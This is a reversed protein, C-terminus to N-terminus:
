SNTSKQSSLKYFRNLQLTSSPPETTPGPTSCGYSSSSVCPSSAPSSHSFFASVITSQQWFDLSSGTLWGYKKRSSMTKRSLRFQWNLVKYSMYAPYLMGFLTTLLDPLIDFLALLMVSFTGALFLLSPRLGTRAQVSQLLPISSLDKEVNTIISTLLPKLDSSM